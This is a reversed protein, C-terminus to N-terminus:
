TYVTAIGHAVGFRLYVLDCRRNVTFRVHFRVRFREHLWGRLFTKHQASNYIRGDGQGHVNGLVKIVGANVRVM